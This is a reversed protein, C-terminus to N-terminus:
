EGAKVVRLDLCLLTDKDRLYLRGRALVPAAWAPYSIGPAMTRALEKYGDQSLTALTLLGREGLIMWKDEPEVYIMSGRGFYSYSDDGGDAADESGDISWVVDGTKLDVCRLEGESEHRGSFGYAYNGVAIPTTWHALLNRRDRWLVNYSDKDLENPEGQANAVQLLASGTRYAASLLVRDGIVVPRAANVSQHVRARFWYHFREKGTKPDLSVLGQRMLCLLHSEGHIKAVIPSSYGVVQEEGTWRYTQGSETEAGDWTPKGVAHWVEEGTKSDFAVVGDDPQGGVLVILLDNFLIPTCGIGFFAEPLDYKEPLRLQWVPNGTKLELCSLLGGAGLTYCLEDTLLPSCRPGGSYGYPDRFNTPDFHRWLSDGTVADLCEIVNENRIRHHVVLRRGRISPASYGEGIEKTWAVPPGDQDFGALNGQEKSIGTGQPGLFQPWDLGPRDPDPVDTGTKLTESSDSVEAPAAKASSDAPEAAAVLPSSSEACGCIAALLILATAILASRKQQLAVLWRLIRM